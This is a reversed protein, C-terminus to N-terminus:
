WFNCSIRLRQFYLPEVNLKFISSDDVTNSHLDKKGHARCCTQQWNDLFLKEIEISYETEGVAAERNLKLKPVLLCAPYIIEIGQLCSLYNEIHGCQFPDGM